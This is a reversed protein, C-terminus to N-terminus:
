PEVKPRVRYIADEGEYFVRDWYRGEGSVFKDLGAAPALASELAGVVVYDAEYLALLEAARAADPTEFIERVAAIRRAVRESAPGPMQQRLHWDWGVISPFGTYNAIRNGWSYLVPHTNWEAIVPNGQANHRLWAILTRDGALPVHQDEVHWVARPLFALGDWSRSAGADFRDRARQPTATLPYLLGLAVLVAGAATAARRARAGPELSLWAAAPACLLGLLVWAQFGFKFVTNSRGIDGRLVLVEVILTLAFATAAIIAAIRVVPEALAAARRRWLLIAAAAVVPLLPLGYVILYDAFPTHSGRWFEFAGYGSYRHRHYPLYALWAAALTSGALLAARAPRRPAESALWLAAALVAALAPVEWTNAAWVGGLALAVLGFQVSGKWGSLLRRSLNVILGLCLLSLPLALVHAHLDGYLFSFFPFETIPAVEGPAHPIARSARFYVESPALGLDHGSVWRAAGKLVDAIWMLGSGPEGGAGISALRSALLQAQKLNGALLVTAPAIAAFAARRRLSPLLALAVGYAASAALAYWAPLAVNYAIEPALGTLRMLAAAPVFGFYYYNIFGGAFWPHHPPFWESRATATLFAVDMPKEGGFHPHWLDPNSLRVAAMFAFALFFVAEGALLLRWNRAAFLRLEAWRGRLAWASALGTLALSAVLPWPGFPVLGWAAACWSLWSTILLGFVRALSYGRDPMGPTLAFLLPWAVAGMLLMWALWPLWPAARGPAGAQWMQRWAPANRVRQWQQEPLMFATPARSADRASQRVVEDWRGIDLLREAHARSYRASKRFIRVRPHDYVSFAEEALHTPWRLGFWGPRHDFVAALEFGLSGDLLTRYYRSTMPYRAPLRPISDSLRNSSLIVYQARDLFDLVTAFKEPTDEHYWTLEIGQYMGGFPDHGHMRLPLADDWHENALTTGAPVNAYIWDSAAVRNHPQAYIQIFALAWLAAGGAVARAIWRRRALPRWRLLAWAALLCLCGYAPLFYRITMAWQSGHQLFVLATWALPILHRAGAPRRLRRAALGFGAWAALGLPAGMGWIVMNLWPFVFPTRSAWQHGPPVDAEGSVMRGIESMNALWRPAPVINWPAPGAFVDPAAFRFIAFATLGFLGARFLESELASRFPVDRRNRARILCVLLAIAAFSAVSLKAAAALGLCAGAACLELLRGRRQYRALLLLAGAVAFNAFPDVVFFHAQQIAAVSLAYFAAGLLAVRRTRYLTIGLLYVLLVTGLDAAASAARGVLTIGDYHAAGTAEALAKVLAVPLMGYVYFGFGTNRPNLPSRAEDMYEAIGAPWRVAGAVMTLFREDPHLHQSQDWNLGYFRLGAALLLILALWLMAPKRFGAEHM